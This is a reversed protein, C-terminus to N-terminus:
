RLVADSNWAARYFDLTVSFSITDIHLPAELGVRKLSLSKM